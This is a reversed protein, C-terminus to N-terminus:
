LLVHNESIESPIIRSLLRDADANNDQKRATKPKPEAPVYEPPFPEASLGYWILEMALQCSSIAVEDSQSLDKIRVYFISM